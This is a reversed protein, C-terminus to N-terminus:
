AKWGRIQGMDASFHGFRDRRSIRGRDVGAEALHAKVKRVLLGEPGLGGFDGLAAWFERWLGAWAACYAATGEPGRGNVGDSVSQSDAVAVIPPISVRLLKVSAHM